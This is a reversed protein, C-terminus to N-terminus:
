DVAYGVHFINLFEDFIVFGGHPMKMKLLLMQRLFSHKTSIDNDIIMRIVMKAMKMVKIIVMKTLKIILSALPRSIVDIVVFGFWMSITSLTLTLDLFIIETEIM